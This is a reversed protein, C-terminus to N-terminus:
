RVIAQAGGRMYRLEAPNASKQPVCTLVGHRALQLDIEDGFDQPRAVVQGDARRRRAEAIGRHSQMVAQEDAAGAGDSRDGDAHTEVGGRAGRHWNRRVEFRRHRRQARRGLRGPGAM